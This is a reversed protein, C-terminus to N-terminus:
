ETSRSQFGTRQHSGDCFPKNASAGCRCLATQGACRTENGSEDLLRFTGQVLLPGNMSAQITAEIAGVNAGAAPQPQNEMIYKLAGSPCQGITEAVEAATAADLQVWKRHRVNFVAPLSELCVASHLCIDPNFTVTIGPASYTQIRKM